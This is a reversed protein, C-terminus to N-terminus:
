SALLIINLLVSGNLIIKISYISSPMAVMSVLVWFYRPIFPGWGGGFNLVLSNPSYIVQPSLTFFVSVGVVPVTKFITPITFVSLVSMFIFHM